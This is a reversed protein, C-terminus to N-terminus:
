VYEKISFFVLRINVAEFLYATDCLVIIKLLLIKNTNGWSQRHSYYLLM